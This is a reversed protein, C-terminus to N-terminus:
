MLGGEVSTVCETTLEVSVRERSITFYVAQGAVRFGMERLAQVQLALQVRM